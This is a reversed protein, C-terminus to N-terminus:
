ARSARGSNLRDRLAILSRADEQETFGTTEVDWYSESLGSLAVDLDELVAILRKRDGTEASRGPSPALVWSQGDLRLELDTLPFGSLPLTIKVM